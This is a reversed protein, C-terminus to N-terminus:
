SLASNSRDYDRRAGGTPKGQITSWYAAEIPMGIESNVRGLLSQQRQKINHHHRQMLARAQESASM